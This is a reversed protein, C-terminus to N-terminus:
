ADSPRKTGAFWRKVGAFWRKSGAYSLKGAGFSTRTAKSSRFLPYHLASQPNHAAPLADDPYLFLPLRAAGEVM